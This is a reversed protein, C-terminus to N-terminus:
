IEEMGVPHFVNEFEMEYPDRSLSMARFYESTWHFTGDFPYNASNVGLDTTLVVLPERISKVIRENDRQVGEFTDGGRKHENIQAQWIEDAEQSGREKYEIETQLEELAFLLQEKTKGKEKM